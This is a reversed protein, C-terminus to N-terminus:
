GSLANLLRYTGEEIPPRAGMEMMREPSLGERCAAALADPSTGEVLAVFTCGADPGRLGIEASGAPQDGEVSEALCVRVVGPQAALKEVGSGVLAERLSDRAGPQPDIRLAWAAGGFGAGAEVVIRCAARVTNRFSPMVKKTWPTPNNLRERYAASTLVAPSQTDYAAFIRPAGSLAEYRRGNLFGPVGVREPFHQRIYWAHFDAEAAPEVDMWVALFGKPEESM